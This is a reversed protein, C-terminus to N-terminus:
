KLWKGLRPHQVRLQGHPRCVARGPAPRANGFSGCSLLVTVGGPRPHAGGPAFRVPGLKRTPRLALCRAGPPTGRRDDATRQGARHLALYPLPCAPVRGGHANRCYPKLPWDRRRQPAQPCPPQAPRRLGWARRLPYASVALARHAGRTGSEPRRVLTFTRTVAFPVVPRFHRCALAVSRRAHASCQVRESAVRSIIIIIHKTTNPQRKLCQRAKM